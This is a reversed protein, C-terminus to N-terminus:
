MSSKLGTASNRPSHNSGDERDKRDREILRKSRKGWEDRKVAAAGTGGQQLRPAAHCSHPCVGSHRRWGIRTIGEDNHGTFNLM